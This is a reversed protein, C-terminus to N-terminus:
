RRYSESLTWYGGIERWAQFEATFLGARWEGYRRSHSM